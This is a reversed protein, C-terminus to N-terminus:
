VGGSGEALTGARPLPAESLKALVHTTSSAMSHGSGGVYEKCDQPLHVSSHIKDRHLFRPPAFVCLPTHQAPVCCDHLGTGM